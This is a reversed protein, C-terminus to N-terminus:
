ILSFNGILFPFVILQMFRGGQNSPNRMFNKMNRILLPKLQSILPASRQDAYNITDYEYKPDQIEPNLQKKNQKYKRFNLSTM